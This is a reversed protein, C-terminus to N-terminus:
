VIRKFAAQLNRTAVIGAPNLCRKKGVPDDLEVLSTLGFPGWITTYHRGPTFLRRGGSHAQKADPLSAPREPLVRCTEEAM